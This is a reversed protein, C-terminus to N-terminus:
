ATRNHRLAVSLASPLRYSSCRASEAVCLGRLPLQRAHAPTRSVPVQGHVRVSLRDIGPM